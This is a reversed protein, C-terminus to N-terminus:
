RCRYSIPPLCQVALPLCEVHLMSVKHCSQEAVGMCCHMFLARFGATSRPGTGADRAIPYPMASRVHQLTRLNGVLSIGPPAIGSSAYGHGLTIKRLVVNMEYSTTSTTECGKMMELREIGMRLSARGDM